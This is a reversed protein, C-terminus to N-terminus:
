ENDLGNEICDFYFSYIEDLIINIEDVSYYEFHPHDYQSLIFKFRFKPLNNIFDRRNHTQLYIQNIINNTFIDFFQLLMEVKKQGIDYQLKINPQKKLEFLLQSLFQLIKGLNSLYKPIKSPIPMSKIFSGNFRLYGSNMHLTGYLSKFIINLIKSNLITLLGFLQNTNFSPVQLFYLGTLNVFVGPDYVFTLDRAIERFILKESALNKWINGYKESYRFFPRYYKNKAVKINKNFDIYYRNVNGTGLLIMDDSSTSKKIINKSEQVWDIFGFPRYILRLDKFVESLRKFKSYINEIMDINESLPIAFSPFKNIKKQDFSYIHIGTNNEFQNPNEFKQISLFQSKFQGKKLFLIIPYTSIHKFSNLSSINVIKKIQTNKLIIERIKIGYDSALFKNTTLYSLIGNKPNLINIAKEIFVVSLDFLKYASAFNKTLKKKYDFDGIRKNEIYPPNGLIIDFNFQSFDLLFDEDFLNCKFDLESLFRQITTLNNTSNFKKPLLSELDDYLWNALRLNSIVNAKEEIDIGYVHQQIIKKKISFDDDNMELLKYVDFLFNAVSILFRGSGSAPDLIKIKSIESQLESKLSKNEDILLQISNIDFEKGPSTSNSYLDELYFRFVNLVIYNVIEWPTYFIGQNKSHTKDNFKNREFADIIKEINNM